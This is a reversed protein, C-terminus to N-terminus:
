FQFHTNETFSKPTTWMEWDKRIWEASDTYVNPMWGTLNTDFWGWPNPVPGNSSKYTWMTWSLGANDYQRVSDAWDDATGTMINFEGIYGPVNWSQHRKFDDVQRTAGRRVDSSSGNWQYEHMEYVVNKWKYTAPDPLSDWNWHGPGGYAGEMFIIHQFDVSRISKYLDNYANWVQTKSSAGSPENILDYGAITYNYKYHNAIQWWLWQTNGQDSPNSWFRNTDTTGVCPRGTGDESASPGRHGTTDSCSQGGVVGHMDLIVYLGVSAAANVIRDLDDFADSRFSDNSVHDVPYFQGYWIPVRIVNLGRNKIIQLDNQTIWTHQYARILEREQAVGFRGDLTKILSYSDKPQTDQHTSTVMPTMWFEMVFLGGLNVGRLQVPTGQTSDVIRTGSTKLLHLTQASSSAIDSVLNGGINTLHSNLNTIASAWGGRGNALDCTLYAFDDIRCYRASKYFFGNSQWRFKGFKNALVYNIDIVSYHKAGTSDQCQARLISGLLSVNSCSASFNKATAATSLAFLGCILTCVLVNQSQLKM